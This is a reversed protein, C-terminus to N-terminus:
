RVMKSNSCTPFQKANSMLGYIKVKINVLM